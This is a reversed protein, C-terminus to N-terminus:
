FPISDDNQTNGQQYPQNWPDQVPQNFTQNVAQTNQQAFNQQPAKQQQPLEAILNYYPLKCGQTFKNNVFAKIYYKQGNIEIEGAFYKVGTKAVKPWLGGRMNNDYNNM